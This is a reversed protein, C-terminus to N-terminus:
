EQQLSAITFWSSNRPDSSGPKCSRLSHLEPKRSGLFREETCGDADEM